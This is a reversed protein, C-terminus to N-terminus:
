LRVVVKTKSSRPPKNIYLGTGADVIGSDHSIAQLVKEREKRKETLEQIQNNLDIWKPDGSAEYDYKVGTEQQSLTAGNIVVKEKSSYKSFEDLFHRDIDDDKLLEAITKEIFKLRILEPLADINGALIESKYSRVFSAVQDKNNPMISLVSIATEM